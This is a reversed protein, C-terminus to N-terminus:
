AATDRSTSRTRSGIRSTATSRRSSATGCAASPSSSSACATSRTCRRSSAQLSRKPWAAQGDDARRALLLDELQDFAVVVPIKVEHLIGMVVKFLSRVLDMRGPQVKFDLEAFGYTLFNALEAEDGMLAGRAFGQVLARRMQGATDHTETRDVIKAILECAKDPEVSSETLLRKLPAFQGGSGTPKAVGDLLWQTREQAQSNGLGIKRTWKGLGPAPFLDLLEDKTATTLAKKLMMRTLEDQVLDLPRRGRQKGGGLLTDIVQFVLYELFDTDKQFCGPTVLIQYAGGTGHKISHLLHTKGSGKNGLIPIMESHTAPAARYLDVIALLQERELSFLEPVHFRACVEDDPNRAFYNRFPNGERRLSELAVEAASRDLAATTM